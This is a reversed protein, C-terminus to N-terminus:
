SVDHQVLMYLHRELLARASQTWPVSGWRGLPLWIAKSTTGGQDLVVPDSPDDCHGAYIIRVAHFNEVVGTPSHGIWHDTQLDLLRNIALTQGTEEGVERAVAQSPSEGTNIGGGPLGWLGSAATQDSFQTALLGHRSTTIAYAALRQRAVPPTNDGVADDARPPEAAARESPPQVRHGHARVLVTMTLDPLSGLASLPRLLEYGQEWCLRRPDAGHALEFAFRAPGTPTEVGIIRM